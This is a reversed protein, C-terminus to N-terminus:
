GQPPLTPLHLLSCPQGGPKGDVWRFRAPNVWRARLTVWRARLTVWRARLAVWRARLTVWRARLTMWRARNVWRARLTVWRARLTVWRARLTVWRARLTMGVRNSPESDPTFGFTSEGLSRSGPGRPLPSAAFPPTDDEAFLESCYLNDYNRLQLV